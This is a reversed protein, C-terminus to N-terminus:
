VGAETSISVHSNAVAASREAHWEGAAARLREHVRRSAALDQARADSELEIALAAITLAGTNGASGGLAHARSTIEGFDGNRCAMALAEVTEDLRATFKDLVRAVLKDDGGCRRELAQFDLVLPSTGAAISTNTPRSATAAPAGVSAAPAPPAAGDCMRLSKGAPRESCEILTEVITVLQIPDIPKTLYEDMGAALCRERDGQIANATLAIIPLHRPNGAAAAKAELRRIAATAQFGDMKPMQCDMLVLDFHSARAREVAAQGDGVLECTWGCRTLLESVVIQNVENDEAVLVHARMSRPAPRPESSLSDTAATPERECLAEVLTDFLRSQRAPKQLYGALGLQERLSEDLAEGLSTLLVLRTGAHQPRARIERALDFGDMEPMQVDLIALPFPKGAAAAAELAAL